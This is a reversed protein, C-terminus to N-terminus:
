SLNAILESMTEEFRGKIQCEWIVIVKWGLQELLEINNKDNRVNAQFKNEWFETRTKPVTADKCGAHRHWFCGHIFIVTNYRKLVIDPKGPLNRVHLRYRYGRAFLYKRVALEIQTNKCKIRSMNWSRREASISDTMDIVM